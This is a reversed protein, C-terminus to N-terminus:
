KADDSSSQDGGEAASSEEPAPGRSRGGRGGRGGGGGRGRGGRGREQGITNTPAKAKEGGSTTPMFAKGRELMEDVTTSDIQVGRLDAVIERTRLQRVGDFCAKVVNIKNNSGQCKTLCDTVGLLELVARVTAGAVIGTGPSAPMLKVRASGFAGVVEHPITGGHLTVESMNRKASKQAKEIAPPVENAKGYGWGIQGRRNGIVVLANFSFRRGGKVTAATRFVGVTTSELQSSEELLEPM